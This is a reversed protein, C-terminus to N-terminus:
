NPMDDNPPTLQLERIIPAIDSNNVMLIKDFFERDVDNPQEFKEFFKELAEPPIPYERQLNQNSVTQKDIDWMILYVENFLPKLFANKDVRLEVSVHTADLVVIGDKDLSYAKALGYFIQWMLEENALNSQSGGILARLEDSSVVYVHNNKVKKLTKSFYSKGSGPVGSLIVLKNM